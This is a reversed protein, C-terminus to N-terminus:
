QLRNHASITASVTFTANTTLFPIHLLHRAQSTIKASTMYGDCSWESMGIPYSRLNSLSIQQAFTEYAAKCNIPLVRTGGSSNANGNANGAYYYSVDLNHTSRTIADEGIQILERKAMFASSSNLIVLSSIVLLFFLTLTLISLSGRESRAPEFCVKRRSKRFMSIAYEAM